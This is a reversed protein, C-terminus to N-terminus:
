SKLQPFFRLVAHMVPIAVVLGVAMQALNFPVEVLAAAFPYGLALQEYLFYGTVMELGGVVASISACVTLNSIHKRLITNLFGVITGELGKIVLTGPAFPAFGLYADALASGAGGALAGVFPGFVLAAIYIITEGFNFYGSTAPISIPPIQSTVVFVLAAFTTALALKLAASLRYKEKGAM